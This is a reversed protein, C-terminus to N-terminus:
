DSKIKKGDENPAEQPRHLLRLAAAGLFFPLWITMTRFVLTILIAETIPVKLTNLAVPLIGEVIGVGSPTPSAYFFLYSISFGGVLTGITFPTNLALFTSALVCLLLAKNNLTFLFPWILNRHSGRITAIGEAVERSFHYASEIKLVDRHLFPKLIRNVLRALWALVNGLKEPAKYGLVLMAGDALAIVLLFSAAVLEGANLNNRRILVIFGLLLICFLAAYEYVLYLVGVVMVRATSIGRKRAADLFVAIGGVGASPAILNIFYAATTLLFLQWRKENLGVLRYLAGFTLATNFLCIIEFLFAVLLFIPNSKKLVELIQKLESFSFIIFAAALLVVIIIVIKRM